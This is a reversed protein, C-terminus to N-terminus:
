RAWPPKAPRSRASSSPAPRADDLLDRLGAQAAAAAGAERGADLPLRDGCVGPRGSICRRCRRRPRCRCRRRGCSSPPRDRGASRPCSSRRCRPRRSWPSRRCGSRIDARSRPSSARRDVARALGAARRVRRAARAVGEVELHADAGAGIDAALLGRQEFAELALAAM